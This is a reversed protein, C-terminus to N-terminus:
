NKIGLLAVHSATRYLNIRGDVTNLLHIRGCQAAIQKYNNFVSYSYALGDGESVTYGKGGTKIRYAIQWLGFFDLAQKISRAAFSGRGFNNSDSVFIAKQAVRLMEAVAREPKGIHHLVGFECVLDFEGDGFPLRTADGDIIDQETLGHAHGAQRLEPVPEVGVVRLEPRHKKIYRLARGTGSGVDLISRIGLYDLVSLMFSLAFYHEDHESVHMQEYRHATEAYYRRQMEIEDAANVAM